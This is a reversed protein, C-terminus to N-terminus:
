RTRHLSRSRTGACRFGIGLRPKLEAGIHLLSGLIQHNDIQHAVVYSADSLDAADADRIQERNLRILGQM